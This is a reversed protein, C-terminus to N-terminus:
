FSVNFQLIAGMLAIIRWVGVKVINAEEFM